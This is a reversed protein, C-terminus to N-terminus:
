AGSHSGVYSWATQGIGIGTRQLSRSQSTGLPLRNNIYQPCIKYIYINTNYIPPIYNILTSIVSPIVLTYLFAYKYPIYLAYIFYKIYLTYVIIYLIM